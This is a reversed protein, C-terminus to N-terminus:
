PYTLYKKAEDLTGVHFVIRAGGSTKTPKGHPRLHTCPVWGNGGASVGEEGVFMVFASGDYSKYIAAGRPLKDGLTWGFSAPWGGSIPLDCCRILADGDLRNQTMREQSGFFPSFTKHCFSALNVGGMNEGSIKYEVAPGDVWAEFKVKKDGQQRLYSIRRGDDEVKWDVKWVAEDKFPWANAGGFPGWDAEPSDIVWLSEPFWPVHIKFTTCQAPELRIPEKLYLDERITLPEPPRRRVPGYPPRTVLGEPPADAACRFGSNYIRMAHNWSLRGAVMHTYRQTHWPSSGALFWGNRDRRGSADVPTFVVQVWQLVSGSMDMVGYPSAGDPFSGVPFGAGLPINGPNVYCASRSWRDGWPYLNGRVGRAAKEWEIETPLRKGVWRAYAMADASNVGIVPWSLKDPDAYQDGVLDTWGVRWGNYQIEHGTEELFRLFQGRTVPYKDIWFERATLIQRSSHHHLMDPHVGAEKAAAEKEARTMGFVFLGGPIRIMMKDVAEPSYDKM